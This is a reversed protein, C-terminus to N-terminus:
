KKTFVKILKSMKEKEPTKSPKRKEGQRDSTKSTAGQKTETKKSTSSKKGKDTTETLTKQRLRSQTKAKELNKM